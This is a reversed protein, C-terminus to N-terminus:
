DEVPPKTMRPVLPNISEGHFSEHIIAELFAAYDQGERRMQELLREAEKGLADLLEQRKQEPIEDRNMGQMAQQQVAEWDSRISVLQARLEVAKRRDVCLDNYIKRNQDLAKTTDERAREADQRAQALLQCTVFTGWFQLASVVTILAFGVLSVLAVFRWRWHRRRLLEMQPLPDTALTVDMQAPDIPQRPIPVLEVHRPESTGDDLAVDIGQADLAPFEGTDDGSEPAASENPENM